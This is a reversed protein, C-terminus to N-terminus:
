NSVKSRTFRNLGHTRVRVAEAEKEAAKTIEGDIRRAARVGEGIQVKLQELVKRQELLSILFSHSMEQTLKGDAHLTEAAQIVQVARGWVSLELAERALASHAGLDRKRYDDEPASM